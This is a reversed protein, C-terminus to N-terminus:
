VAAHLDLKISRDVLLAVADPTHEALQLDVAGDGGAVVLQSVAEGAYDM